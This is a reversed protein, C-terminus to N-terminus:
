QEKAVYFQSEAKLFANFFDLIVQNMTEICTKADVEGVGLLDALIPSFLPLDTFNLHGAELFVTEYANKAHKTAWFNNYSEGVLEKANQYHDEAYINLLAIPYPAENLVVSNNVFALEEGLMTGDLVIVADIDERERGLQASTAGGLSHGILGIKDTDILQFLPDSNSTAAEMCLTNLVFHEDETRLKMWAQTTRFIDQEHQTDTLANIEMAKQIFDNNVITLKGSTDLTFFAQSTHGISAVVYGHSALEAFTSYNSGSFGFAGHSFVILPYQQDAAKPYWFEVTLTRNEPASAYPDIRASDTWTHKATEIELTGTIAPQEYQPCLIALFLALSMLLGNRLFRFLVRRLLYPSEKKRLLSIGAVLAQLSLVLFFFYYRFGWDYVGTARLLVFLLLLAISVIAKEALHNNKTYISWTLFVIELTLVVILTLIGM